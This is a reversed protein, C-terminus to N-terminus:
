YAAQLPTRPGTTAPGPTTHGFGALAGSSDEDTSLDRSGPVDTDAALPFRAQTGKLREGAITTVAFGFCSMSNCTKSQM